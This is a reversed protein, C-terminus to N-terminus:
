YFEYKKEARKLEKLVREETRYKCLSTIYFVYDEMGWLM